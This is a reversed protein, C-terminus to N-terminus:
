FFLAQFDCQLSTGLSAGQATLRTAVKVCFEIVHFCCFTLANATYVHLSSSLYVVGANFAVCPLTISPNSAELKADPDTLSRTQLFHSSFHCLLVSLAVSTKCVRSCTNSEGGCQRKRKLRMHLHM